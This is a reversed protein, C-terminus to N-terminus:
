GQPHLHRRLRLEIQPPGALRWGEALLVTYRGSHTRESGGGAADFTASLLRWTVPCPRDRAKGVAELQATAARAGPRDQRRWPMVKWCRSDLVYFSRTMSTGRSCKWVSERFQAEKTNPGLPVEAIVYTMVRMKYLTVTGPRGGGEARPRCHPAAPVCQTALFASTGGAQPQSLVAKEQPTAAASGPLLLRLPGAVHCMPVPLSRHSGTVAATQASCATCAWGRPSM